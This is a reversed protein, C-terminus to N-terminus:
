AGQVIYIHIYVNTDIRATSRGNRNTTLEWNNVGRCKISFCQFKHLSPNWRVPGTSLERCRRHITKNIQKNVQRLLLFVEAIITVLSSSSSRPIPTQNRANALYKKGCCESRRQPGGLMWHLLYRPIKGWPNLLRSTFSVMWRRVTHSTLAHLIWPPFM